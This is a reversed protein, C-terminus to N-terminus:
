KEDIAKGGVTKVGDRPVQIIHYAHDERIDDTNIISTKLDGNSLSASQYRVTSCNGSTFLILHKQFDIKPADGKLNWDKWLKEWTKVNAIVNSKPTAAAQENTIRGNWSQTIAVRPEQASVLATLTIIAFPIALFRTMIM